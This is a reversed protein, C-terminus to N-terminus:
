RKATIGMGLLPLLRSSEAQGYNFIVFGDTHYRRTIKIQEIAGDPGFHSRSASYGIGPRLPVSGAWKVQRAVLNEFNRNSPTYDMPCVFDLYGRDCWLKWDQGINDRDVSWNSFVAASIKIDKRIARAQESVAKVVTTINDRRWDLWRQRLPGGVLVNGPWNRVKGAVAEFRQRCRDCFCHDSDPYRIYDFHIGDIKYNRVLELMSDIELQQNEPSSPCLWLEEKGRSDAQLRGERRMREVFEKPARSSLNWNVKWVHVQLGYKRCAALCEAVQDGRRAVEPSVPLVKSPYYATGGWLMNPLIATFGNEALRRIAEGWSLGEVGFANHCWFARFEGPLPQQALCFATQIAQKAGTSQELSAAYKKEQVLKLAAKHREQATEIAKALRSSGAKSKTLQEIAEDFTKFGGFEAVSDIGVQAAQRWLDPALAGATALLLRRKNEADDTLLVHTMLICNTSAIIAAEGVPEGKDDLWDALSRTLGPIPQVASINWSRQGVLRPAGPLAGDKVRITSFYGSRPATIHKSPEMHVASRLRGPLSYFALLKGGRKLYQLLGDLSRDPIDPNHPLVVLKAPKLADATLDLDSMVTAGIGLAEFNAVVTRTFRDIGRGEEPRGRAVSDARVVAVLADAGLLGTQRLDRLCFETDVDKARWASIRITTIHGWGAPNGEITTDSKRISVTNWGTDSEPFFSGHYWGDGSQFYISFYSVPSSDRCLIEFEIGRCASLDLQVHRDWSGREITTGAFNCPFRLVKRGNMDVLSVPSSGARGMPKWAARAAANDAYAFSDIQAVASALQAPASTM